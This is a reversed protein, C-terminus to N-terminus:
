NRVWLAWKEFDEFQLENRNKTSVPEAYISHLNVRHKCPSMSFAKSIDQRLQTGNRAAGKYCGTVLNQSVAGDNAEFGKVDDGQWCHLSIPIELFKQIIKETDIGYQRYVVKAMQYASEINERNSHFM